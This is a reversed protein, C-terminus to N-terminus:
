KQSGVKSLWSLLDLKTDPNSPNRIIVIPSPEGILHIETWYGFIRSWKPQVGSVTSYSLDRQIGRRGRLVMHDRYFTAARVNPRVQKGVNLSLFGSLVVLVVPGAYDSPSELLAYTSSALFTLIVLLWILWAHGISYSFLVEERESAPEETKM